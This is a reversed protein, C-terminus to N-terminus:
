QVVDGIKGFSVNEQELRVNFGWHRHLLRHYLAHEEPTLRALHATQPKPEEIWFKRHALLTVEDMLFSVVNPFLGRLQNLIAFGHTDIDGWYFLQREQLWAVDALHEFGYGGGFVVMARPVRPFALFNIENETMFVSEVPLDLAAFTESTVSMEQDGAAPVVALVPDLMRFRVRSPKQRFGYRQLFGGAGVAEHDIAEAPLVLDFMEALIGRHQEIMKTHVGPLDIQRVYVGPRPHDRMWSVIDLLAAWVDALELVRLPRRELLPVVEPLRVRTLRVLELFHRAERKRGVAELADDLSDVWIEAPLDNAGLQRHNVRRWAIRYWGVSSSLLAIWERVEGYRDSLERTTPGKLKLRRPFFESDDLVAALLFGRQWLRQLQLKLDDPTTWGM